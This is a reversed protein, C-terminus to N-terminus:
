GQRRWMYTSQTGDAAAPPQMRLLGPEMFLFQRVQDGNVREPAASGSVTLIITGSDGEPANATGFFSIYSAGPIPTRPGLQVAFYGSVDWSIIGVPDDGWPRAVTGNSLEQEFSDLLWAGFFRSNMRAHYAAPGHSRMDLPLGRTGLVHAHREIPANRRVSM